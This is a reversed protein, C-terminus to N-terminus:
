EPAQESEHKYVTVQNRGNEKSHYLANDAAVIWDEHKTFHSELKSIGLSIKIKIECEEYIITSSEILKRLREAFILAGEVDTDVM